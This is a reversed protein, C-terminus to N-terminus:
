SVSMMRAMDDIANLKMLRDNGRLSSILEERRKEDLKESYFVLAMDLLHISSWYIASSNVEALVITRLFNLVNENFPTRCICRIVKPKLDEDYNQYDEIMRIQYDNSAAHLLLQEQLLYIHSYKDGRMKEEIAVTIKTAEDKDLYFLWKVSWPLEEALLRFVTKREYDDLGQFAEPSYGDTKERGKAEHEKLFIEFAKTLEAEKLCDSLKLEAAIGALAQVAVNLESSSIAWGYARRFVDNEKSFM